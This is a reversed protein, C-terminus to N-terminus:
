RSREAVWLLAMAALLVCWQLREGAGRRGRAFDAAAVTVLGLSLLVVAVDFVIVIGSFWAL